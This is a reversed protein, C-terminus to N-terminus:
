ASAPATRYKLQGAYHAFAKVIKADPGFQFVEAALRGHAGIYFLTISDVGMLVSILELKLNPILKLAQAWYAQVSDKGHLKGSPEGTIQVIIPSSMELDDAYHSLVRDLDHANWARIWEAAFSEAFSEDILNRGNM